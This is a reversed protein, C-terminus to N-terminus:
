AAEELHNAWNWNRGTMKPRALDSVTKAFSTGISSAKITNYATGLGILAATIAAIRAPTGDAIDLFEALGTGTDYIIGLLEDPIIDFAMGEFAATMRNAKAELSSTYIEMKQASIGLSNAAVGAYETAKDYSQMLALFRSQQRTGAFATAIARQQVTSFDGWKGAIEDLVDGFNRFETESKRLTIGLGSLTAEVDSLDEGTEPDSLRSSKIMGMRSLMTNYFTGTSSGDEQMTENVVALQGIVKDINLGALKANAATKALADAMKSSSTAAKMDVAFFKDVVGSAADAELRYGKLAATLATTADASDMNGMISLAMSQQLLKNAENISYGQRLWDQAGRAVNATTTGLVKALESYSKVLREAEDNNYGTIIRLDTLVQDLDVVAQKANRFSTVFAMTLASSVLYTSFTKIKGTLYEFVNGAEGGMDKVTAKFSKISTQATEWDFKAGSRQAANLQNRINIIESSLDHLVKPKITQLYKNFSALASKANVSYKDISQMEAAIKTVNSTTQVRSVTASTSGSNKSASTLAKIQESIEKKSVDSLSISVKIPNAKFVGELTERILKASDGAPDGSLAAGILLKIDAGSKSTVM